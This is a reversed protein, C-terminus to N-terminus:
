SNPTGLATIYKELDADKYGSYTENTIASYRIPDIYCWAEDCTAAFFAETMVARSAWTILTLEGATPRGVLPTDHGGLVNNMMGPVVSLVKGASFQDMATEPVTWGITVDEFLWMAELVHAMNGPELSIYPGIKYTHGGLDTIGVQQRYKLV